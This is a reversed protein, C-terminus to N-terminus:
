ISGVDMSVVEDRSKRGATKNGPNRDPHYEVSLRRYAKKIDETSCGKELGLLEYYNGEPQGTALGNWYFTCCALAFLIKVLISLQVQYTRRAAVKGVIFSERHNM